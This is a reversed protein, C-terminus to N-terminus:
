LKIKELDKIFSQLEEAKDKLDKSNYELDNAICYLKADEIKESDQDEIELAKFILKLESALVESLDNLNNVVINCLAICESVKRMKQM